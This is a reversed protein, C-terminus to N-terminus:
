KALARVVNSYASYGNANIAHVRYDVSQAKVGTDTYEAAKRSLKALQHWGRGGETGSNLRREVVM